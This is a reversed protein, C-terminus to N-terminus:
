GTFRAGTRRKSRTASVRLRGGCAGTSVTARGNRRPRVRFVVRGRANTRAHRSFGAGRLRVLAGRVRKGRRTLVARVRTVGGRKLGVRRSRTAAKCAGGGADSPGSTAASPWAQPDIRVAYFGSEGDTYWVERREPVFAPQSMAYNSNTGQNEVRGVPPPVFYAVEKPSTLDSIDFVRLGSAIFSCAVVTPDVRTPINCYHAAYGQAANQTGPDGADTAARHSDPQNIQLRLNAIVRPKTEDSIDIIRGAGVADANGSPNLTSQTYEDFELV